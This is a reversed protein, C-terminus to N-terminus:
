INVLSSSNFSKALCLWEAIIKLLTTNPTKKIINGKKIQNKFNDKDKTKFNKRVKKINKRRVKIKSLAM